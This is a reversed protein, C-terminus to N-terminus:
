DIRDLTPLSSRFHKEHHEIILRSISLKIVKKGNLLNEMYASLLNKELNNFFLIQLNNKSPWYIIDWEIKKIFQGKLNGIIIILAFKNWCIRLKKHM